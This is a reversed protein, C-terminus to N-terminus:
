FLKQLDSRQFLITRRHKRAYKESNNLTEADCGLGLLKTKISKFAPFENEETIGKSIAIFLGTLAELPDVKMNLVETSVITTFNDFEKDIRELIYEGVGITNPTMLISEFVAMRAYGTIRAESDTRFLENLLIEADRITSPYSLYEAYDNPEVTTLIKEFEQESNMGKMTYVFARRGLVGAKYNVQEAHLELFKKVEINREDIDNLSMAFALSDDFIKAASERKFDFKNRNLVPWLSGVRPWYLEYMMDRYKKQVKDDEELYRWAHDLIAGCLWFLQDTHTQNIDDDPMEEVIHAVAPLIDSYSLKDENLLYNALYYAIAKGDPNFTNGPRSAIDKIIKAHVAKSFEVLAPRNFLKELQNTDLTELTKASPKITELQAYIEEVKVGLVKDIRWFLDTAKETVLQAFIKDLKNWGYKETIYLLRYKFLARSAEAVNYNSLIYKEGSLHQLCQVANYYDFPTMDIWGQGADTRKIQLLYQEFFYAENSTFKFQSKEYYDELTEIPVDRKAFVAVVHEYVGKCSAPIEYTKDTKQYVFTGNDDDRTFIIKPAKYAYNGFGAYAFELVGSEKLRDLYTSIEAYLKVDEETKKDDGILYYKLEDKELVFFRATGCAGM